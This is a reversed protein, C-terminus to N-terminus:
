VVEGTPHFVHLVLHVTIYGGYGSAFLEVFKTLLLLYTNKPKIATDSIEYRPSSKEKQNKSKKYKKDIVSTLVLIM